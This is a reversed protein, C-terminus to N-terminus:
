FSQKRVVGVLGKSIHQRFPSQERHCYIFKFFFDTKRLFKYVHIKMVICYEILKLRDEGCELVVTTEPYDLRLIWKFGRGGPRNERFKECM